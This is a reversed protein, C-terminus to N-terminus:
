AAKDLELGAAKRTALLNTTTPLTPAPKDRQPLYKALTPFQDLFGKDTQISNFAVRLEQDVKARVTQAENYAKVLASIEENLNAWSQCQDERGGSGPVHFSGLGSFYVYGEKLYHKVTKDKFVALVKPPLTESLHTELIKQIAPRPDPHAPLDAMVSSRITQKESNTLRTM